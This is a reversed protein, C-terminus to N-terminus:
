DLQHEKAETAMQALKDWAIQSNSKFMTFSRSPTLFSKVESKPKRVTVEATEPRLRFGISDTVVSESGQEWRDWFHSPYQNKDLSAPIRIGNSTLLDLLVVSDRSLNKKEFSLDHNQKELKRNENELFFVKKDLVNVRNYLERFYPAAGTLKWILKRLRWFM